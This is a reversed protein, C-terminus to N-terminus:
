DMPTDDGVGASQLRDVRRAPRTKRRGGHDRLQRELRAALRDLATEVDRGEARARFTKRPLSLAAELRTTGDRRATSEAIIEVECRTLRPNLRALHSLKRDAVSRDHDTVRHGRGKLTLDM